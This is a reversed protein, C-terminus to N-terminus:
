ESAAEFGGLALSDEVLNVAPVHIYNYPSVRYERLIDIKQVKRQHNNVFLM